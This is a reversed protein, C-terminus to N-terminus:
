RAPWRRIRLLCRGDEADHRARVPCWSPDAPTRLRGCHRHLKSGLTSNSQSDVPLTLGNIGGLALPIIHEKTARDHPLKRDTYPCYFMNSANPHPTVTMIKGQGPGPLGPTRPAPHPSAIILRNSPSPFFSNAYPGLVDGRIVVVACILASSDSKIIRQLWDPSLAKLYNRGGEVVLHKFTADDGHRLSVVGTHGRLLRQM